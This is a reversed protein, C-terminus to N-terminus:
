SLYFSSNYKKPTIELRHTKNGKFNEEILGKCFMREKLPSVIVLNYYLMKKIRDLIKTGHNFFLNIQLLKCERDPRKGSLPANLVMGM